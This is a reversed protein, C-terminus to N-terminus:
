LGLIMSSHLNGIIMAMIDDWKACDNDIFSWCHMILIQWLLSQVLLPPPSRNHWVNRSKIGGGEESITIGTMSLLPHKYTNLASSECTKKTIKWMLIYICCILIHCHVLYIHWLCSFLHLFTRKQYILRSTQMPLVLDQLTPLPSMDLLTVLQQPHSILLQYYYTNGTVRCSTIHLIHREFVQVDNSALSEVFFSCSNFEAM